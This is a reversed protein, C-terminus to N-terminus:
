PPYKRLLFIIEREAELLKRIENFSAQGRADGSIEESWRYGCSKKLELVESQNEEILDM